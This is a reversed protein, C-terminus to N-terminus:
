EMAREAIKQAKEDFLNPYLIKGIELVGDLLRM